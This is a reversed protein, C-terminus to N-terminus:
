NTRLLAAALLLWAIIFSTGGLPAIAGLWSLRTLALLYLSGSFLLIGIFMLVGSGKILGGSGIQHSLVGILILGLAHYIHYEVGTQWVELMRPELKARLGHAGFAGLTVGLAALIAGTSVFFKAV